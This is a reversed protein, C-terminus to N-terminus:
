MDSSFLKITGDDHEWGQVIAAGSYGCECPVFMCCDGFGRDSIDLLEAILEDVTVPEPRDTMFM